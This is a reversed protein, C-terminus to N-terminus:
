VKILSDTANLTQTLDVTARALSTLAGELKNLREGIQSSMGDLRADVAAVGKAVDMVARTLGKQATETNRQLKELVESNPGVFRAIKEM